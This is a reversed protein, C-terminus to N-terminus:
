QNNKKFHSIDSLSNLLAESSRLDHFGEALAAAAQVAHSSVMCQGQQTPYEFSHGPLCM